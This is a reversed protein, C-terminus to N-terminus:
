ESRVISKISYEATYIDKFGLSDYLNKAKNGVVCYLSVIENGEALIKNSIYKVFNRGIGQGQNETKVSVSGIENGDIHAYGIIEDNQMYVLREDSTIAWHKRMKENPQEIVSDPFDGVSIRMDHFSKAYMEHAKDYDSDCYTRIHLEPINFQEGSYEMYTSSFKRIYGYKNAFTKAYINDKRYTTMVQEANNAFLKEECLSLTKYGIGNNRYSPDIFIYLYSKTGAVIQVIGVLKDDNYVCNFNKERNKFELLFDADADEFNILEKVKDYDTDAMEIISINM